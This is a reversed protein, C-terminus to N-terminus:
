TFNSQDSYTKKLRIDEGVIKLLKYNSILRSFIRESYLNKLDDLSYNTSIITSKRSLYRENICLYLQSSIFTNNMETGLDDIILLDCNLIGDLQEPIETNENNREFKNKELIEFLQFSTLYIVTHSTNLIERAICNTLFTKGVGTNGYILINEFSTDFNKIFRLCYEVVQRMNEYPTLNRTPDIKTKEYCDFSFTDFNERKMAEKVNSQSYILDVIAQKFCQCKKNGVYGTDKCIPCQYDPTLYDKPFSYAALLEEKEQSLEQIRSKLKTLAEQDGKLALKACAVSQEAISTDYDHLQPILQYVKEYKKELSHRSRIQREDYERLIKNYQINKLGM